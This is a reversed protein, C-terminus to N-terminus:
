SRPGENNTKPGVIDVLRIKLRDATKRPLRIAWGGFSADIRAADQKTQDSWPEIEAIEADIVAWVSGDEEPEGARLSVILGGESQATVDFAPNMELDDARIPKADDFRVAEFLGALYDIQFQHRVKTGAPPDKLNLKPATPKNRSLAVVDGDAHRLTLNTLGNAELNIVERDSWEVADFRVDPSGEALWSRQDGPLRIYGGKQDSARGGQKPKGVIVDALLAGTTNRIAVRTSVAGAAVDEVGLKPHLHNRETKPAVYRLGALAAIVQDIHAAQAPYGGIGMNAWGNGQRSLVFQGTSRTVEIDSITNVQSQLEPFVLKGEHQGLTSEQYRKGLAIWCSAAVIATVTALMLLGRTPM